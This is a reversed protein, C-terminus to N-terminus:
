LEFRMQDTSDIEEKGRLLSSVLPISFGRSIMRRAIRTRELHDLQKLTQDGLKKKLYIKASEFESADDRLPISPLGKSKLKGSIWQRGRGENRWQRIWRQALEREDALYGLNKLSDVVAEFTEQTFKARQRLKLRLEVRSHDRRALLRLAREKLKPVDDFEQQKV